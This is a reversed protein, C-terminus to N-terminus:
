DTGDGSVMFLSGSRQGGDNRLDARLKLVELVYAASWTLITSTPGLSPRCFSFLVIGRSVFSSNIRLSAFVPTVCM